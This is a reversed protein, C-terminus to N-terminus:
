LGHNIGLLPMATGIICLREAGTLCNLVKRFRAMGQRWADKSLELLVYLMDTYAM